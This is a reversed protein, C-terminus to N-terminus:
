ALLCLSTVNGQDLGLTSMLPVWDMINWTSRIHAWCTTALATEFQHLQELTEEWQPDYERLRDLVLAWGSPRGDPM